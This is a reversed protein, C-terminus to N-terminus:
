EEALLEIYFASGKGEGESEAWIRGHHEKMMIAAVYLGLGIGETYVKQVGEARSFKKFILSLTKDSMGIGNDKVSIVVKGRVLDKSLRVQITGKEPTYKIANDVLNTIVQRIKGEDATVLYDGDGDPSFEVAQQKSRAQASNESVIDGVMKKIDVSTFDYSMKGQDIRSINLFDEVIGVLRVSSDYIKQVAGKVKPSIEGFSGEVLMSSYGKIATLPTRLQHSAISVFESKQQDLLRLHENNIKLKEYLLAKDMGVAVVDVLSKVSEAEHVSLMKYDRNLGLFLMGVSVGRVVLPYLLLNKLHSKRAVELLKEHEICGGWIDELDKTVGFKKEDLVKKLLPKLSVNEIKMDSFLFGLENLVDILRKSKSFCFSALADTEQNFIFIGVAELRLDARITESLEKSLSATDLNSLSLHYLKKLLSLTKNVVALELNRKYIEENVKQLVADKPSFTNSIYSSYNM